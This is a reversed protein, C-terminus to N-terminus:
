RPKPNLLVIGSAVEVSFPARPPSFEVHGDCFLINGGQRGHNNGPPEGKESFVQQAAAKPRSDVLRDSMLLATPNSRSQGMWYAYSIKRTAFSEASTLPSDKSAPCIFISTDITYRPVLLSLAEESSRATPVVPYREAFDTAYVGLAVHIKQLNNQCGKRQVEQESPSLFRWYMTTLLLVVVLVVLLEIRSFGPQTVRGCRLLRCSEHANSSQQRELRRMPGTM